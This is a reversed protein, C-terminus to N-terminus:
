KEIAAAASETARLKPLIRRIGSLLYSLDEMTTKLGFSFRIAAYEETAAGIAALVHSTKFKRSSCASGVSVSIGIRNLSNLLEGSDVGGFGINLNHPVRKELSGNIVFDSEIQRLEELFYDRLDYLRQAEREMEDHAIQAADGLAIIAGVNETGSRLGYEQEGGHIQPILSIGQEVYLGGIGKPAYIKHGSFTLLSIGMEKPKLPIKGFGQIADTMFPIRYEKCIQGIERLPTITGIENNVAMTSVLITDKRIANKVAEPAVLGDRDVDLYTVSFGLTELYEMVKLVSQHETKTTILHGKKDLYRFAIGKIALNNAESGCGTFIIEGPEVALCNAIKTRATHILQFADNGQLTNSSPNAFGYKGEYYDNLVKQVEPRINTTANHDLYVERFNDAEIDRCKCPKADPIKLQEAKLYEDFREHYSKWALYTSIKNEISVIFSKLTRFSEFELETESFQLGLEKEIQVILNVFNISNFGINLLDEEVDLEDYYDLEPTNKLLERLKSEIKQLM